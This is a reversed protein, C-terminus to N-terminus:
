WWLIGLALPVRLVKAFLFHALGTFAIAVLLARLMPVKLRLMIVLMVATGAILFGLWEVFLIYALVGGLVFVSNLFSSNRHLRLWSVEDSPDRTRLGRMALVAGLGIMLGATVRPFLSPGLNGGPGAPYDLTLAEALAGAAVFGAGVITDSIKM